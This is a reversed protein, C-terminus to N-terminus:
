LLRSDISLKLSTSSLRKICEKHHSRVSNLDAKQRVREEGNECRKDCRFPM